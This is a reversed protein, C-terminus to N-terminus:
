ALDDPPPVSRRVHEPKRMSIVTLRAEKPLFRHIQAEFRDLRRPFLKSKWWPVYVKIVVENGRIVVSLDKFGYLQGYAKALSTLAADINILTM